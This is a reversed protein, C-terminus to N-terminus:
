EIFQINPNRKSLDIIDIDTIMRNSKLNLSALETLPKLGEYTILDNNSLDLTKLRKLHKVAENNIYKNQSLNLSTLETLAILGENTIRINKNLNLSTLKTLIKLGKNTIVENSSLDLSTLGILPVLGEDTIKYNMSLNLSTLGPVAKLGEDTIVENNILDLSILGMLSKLDNNTIKTNFSLNLSTLEVLPILGNGTIRTNNALSLTNLRKLASLGDNTIRINSSLNLSTLGTHIKLDENSIRTNNGLNLSILNELPILGHGTIKTNGALSLTNLMTLPKLGVDTIKTNSNLNLSTLMKLPSLGSDTIKTNKTLNLTRLMKLPKLGDDTIKPNGTLNLTNLGTLFKLDEDTIRNDRSLDLSIISELKKPNMVKFASILGYNIMQQFPNNEDDKPWNELKKVENQISYFRPDALIKQIILINRNNMAYLLLSIKNLPVFQNLANSKEIWRPLLPSFASFKQNIIMRYFVFSLVKITGDVSTIDRNFILSLPFQTGYTENNLWHQENLRLFLSAMWENQFNNEDITRYHDRWDKQPEVLLDLKFHGKQFTWKIVPGNSNEFVIQPFEDNLTKSKTVDNIWTIELGDRSLLECLRDLKQSIQELRIERNQDWPQNLIKDPVLHAIVNFMNVIGCIEDHMHSKIEYYLPGSSQAPRGYQISNITDKKTLDNLNSVINIWDNHINLSGWKSLDNNKDFFQIMKTFPHNPDLQNETFEIKNKFTALSSPQIKGGSNASLIMGLLSLLSTEGCDPFTQQNYSTDSRYDIPSSFPSEFIDFGKAMMFALENNKLLGLNVEDSIYQNKLDKYEELTFEAQKEWGEKMLTPLMRLADQDDSIKVLFALLATIVINEPYLYDKLSKPNAWKTQEDFAKVLLQAFAQNDRDIQEKLVAQFEEVNLHSELEHAGKIRLEEAFVDMLESPSKTEDFFINHMYAFEKIADMNIRYIEEKDSKLKKMLETILKQRLTEQWIEKFELGLDQLINRLEQDSKDAYKSKDETTFAMIKKILATKVGAPMKNSFPIKEEEAMQFIIETDLQEIKQLENDWSHQKIKEIENKVFEEQPDIQIKKLLTKAGKTESVIRELPNKSSLQTLILKRITDPYDEPNINELSDIKIDVIRDLITKIQTIKEPSPSSSLLVQIIPDIAELHRSLNGAPDAEYTTAVFQVGDPSNFLRKILAAIPDQGQDVKHIREVADEDRKKQTITTYNGFFRINGLMNGHVAVMAWFPSYQKYEKKTNELMGKAQSVPILAEASTITLMLSLSLSQILKKPLIKM